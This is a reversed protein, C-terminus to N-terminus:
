MLPSVSQASSFAATSNNPAIEITEVALPNRPRQMMQRIASVVDEVSIGSMCRRDFECTNDRWCPACPVESYINHNCIYGSQWPAERGGFVIVSPADVARALHMLFGVAGVYLRAHYLIAATERISTTGRLDRVRQLPPDAASGIQIFDVKGALADVVGQFRDEYWQKNQMPHRAIMGSSQIVIQGRAWAGASKEQDSLLLYPRISVPGFIGARACMEAIIHRTPPKRQDNGISPAYELRTFDGGWNRVFRRCISITSRDRSYRAWLPRVYALDQNGEFLEPHDSVM